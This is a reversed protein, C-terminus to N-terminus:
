FCIFTISIRSIFFATKGARVAKDLKGPLNAVKKQMSLVQRTIGTEGCVSVSYSIILKPIFVMDAVFDLM